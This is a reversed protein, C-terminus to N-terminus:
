FDPVDDFGDEEVPSGWNSPRDYGTERKGNVRARVKHWGLHAMVQGLRKQEPPKMNGPLLQLAEAMVESILVRPRSHSRLWEVVLEEWVDEDFRDEQESEFLHKDDEQPWWPVGTKYLHYAEAWLQDRDRTLDVVDVKTCAVPWYRRNGTADKLYSEQNTSGAFVCQRPFPQVLRGYSPRYRDVQSGFFQKARTSEAKNLSDLEALEIIWVGQMQQFSDKEGLVLPTDTFWDGGLVGLATSKGLGQLGEFIIVSDVKVPAQMVRTVASVLWMEGVLSHYRSADAGLYQHLWTNVRPVGDWELSNLYDRVPHFRNDEAAVVVAGLADASKPTFAFKESLWIRLRDTDTDSWEGVDGNSFPPKKLKIIRYSFDCYGLVGQWRKDNDLVLKANAIDAKIGGSDNLIFKLHWGEKTENLIRQEKRDKIIKNVAAAQIELRNDHDIWAKFVEVGVSDKVVTKNMLGQLEADWVKGTPVVWFYRALAEDLSIRGSRSSKNEPIDEVGVSHQRVESAETYSEVSPVESPEPSTIFDNVAKELQEKVVSLGFEVHLDNFDTKDVM